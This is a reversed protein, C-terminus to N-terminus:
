NTLLFNTGNGLSPFGNQPVIMEPEDDHLFDSEQALVGNGIQTVFTKTVVAQFGFCLGGAAGLM